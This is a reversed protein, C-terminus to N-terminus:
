RVGAVCAAWEGVIHAAGQHGPLPTIRATPPLQDASAALRSGAPVWAVEAARLLELDFPTDGAALRLPRAAALRQGEGDALREWLYDAAANKDLGPPLLYLKRGQLTARWGIKACQAALTAFQGDDLLHPDVIAYSFVDDANAFRLLWPQGALTALLRHAVSPPAADPSTRRRRAQWELDPQGDALVVGGNAAVGYRLPVPLRLRRLQAVTRTTVPVFLVGAPLDRLGAAVTVAMESIVRGEVVDVPEAPLGGGLRATARPSFILTQDLDSTIVARLPVDPRM